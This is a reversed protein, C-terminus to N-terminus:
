STRTATFAYELFAIMFRQDTTADTGDDDPTPERENFQRLPSTQWGAAVPREGELAAGIIDALARCGDPDQHVLRVRVTCRHPLATGAESRGSVHPLRQDVVIWAGTGTEARGETTPVGPVDPFLAMVADGLARVSM